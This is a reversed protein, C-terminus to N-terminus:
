SFHPYEHTKCGAHGIVQGSRYLWKGDVKEFDSKEMFSVDKGEKKLHAFFVVTAASDTQHFDLIDLGTFQTHKSFLMIKEMWSATDACFYPNEPHTTEIIYEPICLAYAAYRSRMLQLATDPREGLHFPQCCMEYVIGSWCPCLM